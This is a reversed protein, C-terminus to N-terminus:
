ASGGPANALETLSHVYGAIRHGFGPAAPLNHATGVHHWWPTLPLRCIPDDARQIREVRGKVTAAFYSAWGSDGVKPCGFLHIITNAGQFRPSLAALILVAAAGLSHGQLRYIVGAGPVQRLQILADVAAQAKRAHEWFGRAVLGNGVHERRFISVDEMLDAGDDTGALTIKCVKALPNYIFTGRTNGATFNPSPDGPFQPHAGTYATQCAQAAILADDLDNM